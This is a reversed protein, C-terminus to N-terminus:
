FNFPFLVFPLTRFTRFTRFQACSQAGNRPTATESKRKGKGKTSQVKGYRGSEGSGIVGM